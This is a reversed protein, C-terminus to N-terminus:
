PMLGKFLKKMKGLLASPNLLDRGVSAAERHAGRMGWLVLGVATSFSPDSARETISAIDLPLGVVAPLKLNAKAAEVVGALKAGGGTLIVGAPLLGAREVKKLENQIRGLLEEIRAEIIESVYKRSVREAQEAGVDSLNIEERRHVEKPLATGLQVKIREAVDITTRLGIAIDSTVKEGGIPIVATGLLDGNEFIAMSTTAAGINVVAVGLDRQRPTAVAEATALISLVLDEIDISTRYVCKTLNKIQSSLGQIIAADVELRISTMGVPYKIGTQGDVSFSKPIVHLIEYNSPTAVTRAAEIARNVDEVGIEGDPRSVGVVGKSNQAVIHTGSIGVWAREIPAGIMREARELAASVSSVADEISVVAGKSIGESVAEAAGIIQIPMKQDTKPRMKGVAVRIASSGIDLGVVFDKSMAIAPLRLEEPPALIVM